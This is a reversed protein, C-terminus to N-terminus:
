SDAATAFWRCPRACSLDARRVAGASRRLPKGRRRRAARLACISIARASIVPRVASRRPRLRASVLAKDEAHVIGDPEFLRFSQNAYWHSNSLATDWIASQAFAPGGVSAMIVGAASTLLHSRIWRTLLAMEETFGTSVAAGIGRASTNRVPGDRGFTCRARRRQGGMNMPSPEGRRRGGCCFGPLM